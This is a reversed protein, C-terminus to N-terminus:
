RDTRCPTETTTNAKSTTDNDANKVNMHQTRVYTTNVNASPAVGWASVFRSRLFDGSGSCKRWGHAARHVSKISKRRFVFSEAFSFNFPIFSLFAHKLTCNAQEKIPVCHRILPFCVSYYLHMTSNLETRIKQKRAQNSTHPTHTHTLEHQVQLRSHTHGLTTTTTTTINGIASHENNWKTRAQKNNSGYTLKVDDLQVSASLMGAIQMRLTNLVSVWEPMEVNTRWRCNWKCHRRFSLIPILQLLTM